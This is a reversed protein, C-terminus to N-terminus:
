FFSPRNKPEFEKFDGDYKRVQNEGTFMYSRFIKSADIDMFEPKDSKDSLGSFGNFEQHAAYPRTLFQKKSRIVYHRFVPFDLLMKWGINM